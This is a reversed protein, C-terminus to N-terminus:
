DVLLCIPPYGNSNNFTSNFFGTECLVPNSELNHDFSPESNRAEPSAPTKSFFDLNPLARSRIEVNGQASCQLRRPEHQSCACIAHSTPFSRVESPTMSRPGDAHESRVGGSPQNATTLCVRWTRKFAGGANVNGFDRKFCSFLNRRSPPHTSTCSPEAGAQFSTCRKCTSDLSRFFRALRSFCSRSNSFRMEGSGHVNATTAFVASPVHMADPPKTSNSSPM